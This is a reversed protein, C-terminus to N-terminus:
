SRCGERGLIGGEAALRVLLAAPQRCEPDAHPRAAFRRISQVVRYLGVTDAYCLAGGRWPPFGLGAICVLDIDSARLALGEELIRAAENVLAYVLREVIENEAIKRPQLGSALRHKEILAHVAPSPYATREGAKYDYWGAGCKQGFRGM